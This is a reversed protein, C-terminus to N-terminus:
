GGLHHGCQQLGLLEHLLRLRALLLQLRWREEALPVAVFSARFADLPVDELM